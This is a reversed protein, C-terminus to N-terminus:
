KENNIIGRDILLNMVLKVSQDLTQNETNVVLDPSEPPEYISSIGTFNIVEGKEAKKYLGKIDRKKCIDISCDVFIEIFEGQGMLEKVRNRDKSFPSIFASLAIVGAEVFLKSMEGIRRINEKRDTDSFGLDGCLGHRVNDGDLVITRCDLRYLEEEVCHALTSKGSGSLGTFWLVASKHNNKQNRRQRTVTAHHWVTNISKM